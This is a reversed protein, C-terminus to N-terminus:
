RATEIADLKMKVVKAVKGDMYKRYDKVETKIHKVREPYYTQPHPRKAYFECGLSKCVEREAEWESLKRVPTGYIKGHNLSTILVARYTPRGEGGNQYSILYVKGRELKM